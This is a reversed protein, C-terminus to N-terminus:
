AKCFKSEHLDYQVNSRVGRNEDFKVSPQKSPLLLL